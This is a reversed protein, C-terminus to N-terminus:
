RDTAQDLSEITTHLRTSSKQTLGTLLSSRATVQDGEVDMTGNDGSVPVWFNKATTVGPAQDPTRQVLWLVVRQGSELDSITDEDKLKAKDLWAVTLTTEPSGQLVKEVDFAYFSLPTGMPRGEDTLEPDGGNDLESGIKKGVTGLVVIESHATLDSVTDYVPYDMEVNMKDSGGCAATGLLIGTLALAGIGKTARM